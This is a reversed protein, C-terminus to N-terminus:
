GRGAARPQGPVWSRVRQFRIEYLRCVPARFLKAGCNLPGTLARATEGSPLVRYTPPLKVRTPDTVRLRNAANRIESPSRSVLRGLKLAVTSASAHRAARHVDPPANVVTLPTDRDRSAATWANLPARVPQAGAASLVTRASVKVPSLVLTM